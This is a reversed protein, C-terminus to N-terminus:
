STLFALSVSWSQPTAGPGFSVDDVSEDTDLVVDHHSSRRQLVSPDSLEWILTSQCSTMLRTRNCYHKVCGTMSVISSKRFICVSDLICTNTTMMMTWLLSSVDRIRLCPSILSHSPREEGDSASYWDLQREDSRRALSEFARTDYELTPCFFWYIYTNVM